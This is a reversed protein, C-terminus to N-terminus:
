KYYVIYEPYIQNRDYVIFERHFQTGGAGLVSDCTGGTGGPKVPPRRERYQTSTQFADGMLVRSYLLTREGRRTTASAYQNSKCSNEAFYTGAGYLGGMNAMREDFGHRCAIGGPPIM